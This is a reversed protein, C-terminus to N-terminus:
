ISETTNEDSFNKALRLSTQRTTKLLDAVTPLPTTKLYFQYSFLRRNIKILFSNFALLMRSFYNDGIAKPYPAPIGSVCEVSYGSEELLNIISKETFLRLHTLDLIGQKGYRFDGFFLRLRIIFFAINPVTIIVTPKKGRVKERVDDLFIEPSKLHEIVDLLLIYDFEDIAFNIRGSNLDLKTYSDVAYHENLEVIDVGHVSCGKEKLEGAILGYGCGVDLVRSGPNV